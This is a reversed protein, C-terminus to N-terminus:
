AIPPDSQPIEPFSIALRHEFEREASDAETLLLRARRGAEGGAAIVEGLNELGSEHILSVAETHLRMLLDSLEATEELYTACAELEQRTLQRFPKSSGDPLNVMQDFYDM